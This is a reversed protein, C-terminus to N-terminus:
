CLIEIVPVAAFTTKFQGKAALADSMATPFGPAAAPM